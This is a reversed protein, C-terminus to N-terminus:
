NFDEIKYFPLKNQIYILIDSKNLKIYSIVYPDGFVSIKKNNLTAKFVGTIKINKESFYEKIVDIIELSTSKRVKFKSLIDKISFVM